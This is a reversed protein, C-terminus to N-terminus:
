SRKLESAREIFENLIQYIEYISEIVVHEQTTHQSMEGDAGWVIGKIGNESLFRADSAGHEFGVKSNQSIDLLLDLYPSEGGHFLPEKAEVILQGKIESQMQSVLQDVDDTETYRIDFLAEATEPVQNFSKGSQVISFNLTRHWHDPSTEQFFSRLKLYDEILNEIANEGLWPRAGHASKGSSVLRLKLVGKEKVVIRDPTGGDLAICFDAKVENLVKKAGNAGGIEEDGTILVGFPLDKQGKGNSRLRKLQNKILVLSLAAAYKDDVSGRGYLKGAKEVPSFLEAPADVVDIHSMLLISTIRSKPMVLISPINEHDFRWYEIADKELYEEIFEVCKKIEAPESHMSRFRMLDKTLQVIKEM